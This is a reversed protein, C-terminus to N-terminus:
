KMIGKIKILQEKVKFYIDILHPDFYTGRREKLITDIDHEPLAKRYVRDFCLADYVDAVALIRAELPIQEGKLGHVYGTGDWKEHHYLAINKAMPDVQVNELFRAGIVVHQEMIKAEEPTFCGQKKLIHDPIGVKGVDHLPSYLKIRKVFDPKCGMEEAIVVCYNSVRKLHNGTDEDSFFAANELARVMALNLQEIKEIKEDTLKMLHIERDSLIKNKLKLEDYMQRLKLQIQIRAQLDHSDFPKRIYDLRGFESGNSELEPDAIGSAVIIPIEKSQSRTRIAKLLKSQDKQLMKIDSVIVSIHTEALIKLAENNEAAFFIKGGKGRIFQMFPEVANDKEASDTSSSIFLINDQLNM